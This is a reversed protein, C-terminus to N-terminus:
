GSSFYTKSSKFKITSFICRQDEPSLNEESEPNPQQDNLENEAFARVRAEMQADNGVFVPRSKAARTTRLDSFDQMVKVNVCVTM